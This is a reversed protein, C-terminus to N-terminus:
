HFGATKKKFWSFLQGRVSVLDGNIEANKGWYDIFITWSVAPDDTYFTCGWRFDRFGKLPAEIKTYQIVKRLLVSTAMSESRSIILKYRFNDQLSKPSVNAYTEIRTPIYIVEERIIQRSSLAKSLSLLHNTAERQPVAQGQSKMAVLLLIFLAPAIIKRM